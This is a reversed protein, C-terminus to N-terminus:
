LFAYTVIEADQEAVPAMGKRGSGELGFLNRCGGM